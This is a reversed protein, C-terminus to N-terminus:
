FVIRWFDFYGFPDHDFIQSRYAYRVIMEAAIAYTM